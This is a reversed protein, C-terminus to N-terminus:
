SRLIKESLSYCACCYFVLVDYSVLSVFLKGRPFWLPYFGAVEELISDVGFLLLDGLVATAKQRRDLWLIEKELPAGCKLSCTIYTVLSLYLSECERNINM